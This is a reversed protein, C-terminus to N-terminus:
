LLIRLTWSHCLFSHQLLSNHSLKESSLLVSSASNSCSGISSSNRQPSIGIDLERITPVASSLSAVHHTPTPEKKEERQRERRKFKGTWEGRVRGRRSEEGKREASVRAKGQGESLLPQPATFTHPLIALADLRGLYYLQQEIGSVSMM